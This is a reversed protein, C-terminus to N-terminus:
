ILLTYPRHRYYKPRQDIRLHLWPVGAGATNLWLPADGVQELMAQGTLGWLEESQEDPANNLFDLLHTYPPDDGNPRPVIMTADGGLNQFAIVSANADADEFQQRFSYPDAPRILGPSDILVFEFASDLSASTVAPTEFRAAEFGCGKMAETLARGFAAEGALSEFASRVTMPKEDLLVRYCWTSGDDLLNRPFDFNPM